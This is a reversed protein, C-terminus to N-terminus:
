VYEVNQRTRCFSFKSKRRGGEHIGYGGSVEMKRRASDAAGLNRAVSVPHGEGIRGSYRAFQMPDRGSSAVMLRLAIVAETRTFVKRGLSM